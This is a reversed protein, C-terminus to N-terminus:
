SDGTRRASTVLDVGVLHEIANTFASATCCHCRNVPRTPSSLYDPREFSKSRSCPWPELPARAREPFLTAHFRSSCPYRICRRRLHKTAPLLRNHAFPLTHLYPLARSRACEEEAPLGRRQAVVAVKGRRMPSWNGTVTSSRVIRWAISPSSVASRANHVRWAGCM